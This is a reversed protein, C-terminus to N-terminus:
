AKTLSVAVLKLMQNRAKGPDNLRRAMGQELVTPFEALGQGSVLFPTLAVPVPSFNTNCM